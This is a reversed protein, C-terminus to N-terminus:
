SILQRSVLVVQFSRCLCWMQPITSADSKNYVQALIKRQADVVTELNKINTSEELPVLFSIDAINTGCYLFRRM